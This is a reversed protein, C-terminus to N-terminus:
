SYMRVLNAPDSYMLKGARAEMDHRAKFKKDKSAHTIGNVFGYMDSNGESGVLMADLFRESESHHKCFSEVLDSYSRTRLPFKVGRLSELHDVSEKSQAIAKGLNDGFSTMIGSDGRHVWRSSNIHVIVLSNTCVNRQILPLVSVASRGLENNRLLAGVGYSGNNYEESVLQLGLSDRGIFSNFGIPMDKYNGNLNQLVGLTDITLYTPSVIGRVVSREGDINYMRFKYQRNKLLKKSNNLYEVSDPNGYLLDSAARRNVRRRNLSKEFDTVPTIAQFLSFFADPEIHYTAGDEIEVEPGFGNHSFKWQYSNLVQDWKKVEEQQAFTIAQDLSRVAISNDYNYNM